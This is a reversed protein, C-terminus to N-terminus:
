ADCAVSPAVLAGKAVKSIGNVLRGSIETQLHRERAIQGTSNNKWAAEHVLVEIERGGSSALAVGEVRDHPLESYRVFVDRRSRVFNNAGIPIAPLVHAGRIVLLCCVHTPEQHQKECRSM